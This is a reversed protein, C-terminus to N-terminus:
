IILNPIMIRNAVFSLYEMKEGDERNRFLRVITLNKSNHLGKHTNERAYLGVSCKQSFKG